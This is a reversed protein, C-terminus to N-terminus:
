AHIGVGNMKYYIGQTEGTSDGGSVVAPFKNPIVRIKWHPSNAKSSASRYAVIEPPTRNERGPCFPCLRDTKSPKKSRFSYDNPRKGRESSIIVWRGTVPDKRLEPM